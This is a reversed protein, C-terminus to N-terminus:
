RPAGNEDHDGQDDTIPRAHAKLIIRMLVRAAGPTLQLPEDPLVLRVRATSPQQRKPARSPGTGPRNDYPRSQTKPPGSCARQTRPTM